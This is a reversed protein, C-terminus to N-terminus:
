KGYANLLNFQGKLRGIGRHELLADLTQNIIRDSSIVPLANIQLLIYSSFIFLLRAKQKTGAWQLKLDRISNRVTKRFSKLSVSLKTLVPM